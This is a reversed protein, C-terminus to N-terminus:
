KNAFASTPNATSPAYKTGMIAVNCLSMEYAGVLHSLDAVITTYRGQMNCWHEGGYKWVQQNPYSQGNHEYTVTVYNSNDDKRMFTGSKNCKPNNLHNPDDGIHIDYNQFYENKNTHEHPARGNFLDQVLVVCHQFFSDGLDFEIKLKHSLASLM